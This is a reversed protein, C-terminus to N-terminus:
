ETFIHNQSCKCRVPATCKRCVGCDSCVGKKAAKHEECKGEHEDDTPEM